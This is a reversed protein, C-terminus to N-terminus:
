YRFPSKARCFVDKSKAPVTIVAAIPNIQCYKALWLSPATLSHTSYIRGGKAAAAFGVSSVQQARQDSLSFKTGAANENRDLASIQAMEEDTLTFDYLETNEQIHDPNGSGPIVAVGKQLSWRLIVQLM